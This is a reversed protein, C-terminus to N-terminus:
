EIGSEMGGCAGGGNGWGPLYVGDAYEHVTVFDVTFRKQLLADGKYKENTFIREATNPRRNGKGGPTSIEKDTYVNYIGM